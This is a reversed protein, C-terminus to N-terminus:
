FSFRWVCFIGADPAPPLATFSTTTACFDLVRTGSALFTRLETIEYFSNRFQATTAFVREFRERWAGFNHEEGHQFFIEFGAIANFRSGDYSSADYLSSFAIERAYFNERAPFDGFFHSNGTHFNGGACFRSNFFGASDHM